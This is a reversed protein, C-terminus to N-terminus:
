SMVAMFTYFDSVTESLTITVCAVSLLKLHLATTIIEFCADCLVFCFMEATIKIQEDYAV